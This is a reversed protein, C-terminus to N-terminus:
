GQRKFEESLIEAVEIFWLGNAGSVVIREGDTEPKKLPLIHAKAVDRVDVIPLQIRPLLPMEHNLIQRVM